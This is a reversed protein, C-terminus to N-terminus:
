SYGVFSGTYPSNLARVPREVQYGGNLGAELDGSRDLSAVSTRRLLLSRHQTTITWKRTGQGRVLRRGTALKRHKERQEASTDIICCPYKQLVSKGLMQADGGRPEGCRM